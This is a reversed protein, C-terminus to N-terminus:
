SWTMYKSIWLSSDYVFFNDLISRGNGQYPTDVLAQSIIRRFAPAKESLEKLLSLCMIACEQHAAVAVHYMEAKLSVKM